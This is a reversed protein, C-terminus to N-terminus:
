QTAKDAQAIRRRMVDVEAQLHKGPCDTYGLGYHMSIECHSHLRSVPISYEAMLFDVLGRLADLQRTTPKQLEFNGMLVIGINGKNAAGNGAHAGQYKLPRGQWVRGSYDIIYHYGIDAWGRHNKHSKQLTRLEDKIAEISAEEAIGMGEHHITLRTIKGMPVTKATITPSKTWTPRGNIKPRGVQRTEPARARVVPAPQGPLVLSPLSRARAADRAPTCGVLAFLALSFVVVARGPSSSGTEANGGM